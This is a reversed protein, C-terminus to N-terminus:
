PGAFITFTAWSSGKCLKVMERWSPASTSISVRSPPGSDQNMNAAGVPFIEQNTVLVASFTNYNVGDRYVPFNSNDGCQCAQLFDTTGNMYVVTSISQGNGNGIALSTAILTTANKAIGVWMYSTGSQTLNVNVQYYGARQPTFKGTTADYAGMDNYSNASLSNWKVPWFNFTGTNGPTAIYGPSGPFVTNTLTSGAANGIYMVTNVVGNITAPTSITVIQYGSGVTTTMLEVSGGADVIVSTSTANLPWAQYGSFGTATLTIPSGGSNNIVYVNNKIDTIAPSQAAILAAVTQTSTSTSIAYNSTVANPLYVSQNTLLAASFYQVGPENYFTTGANNNSNFAAQVYDTTGNLYVVAEPNATYYAGNNFVNSCLTTGNKVIAAFTYTPNASTIGVNIQYYGAVTPQYKGTATNYASQPNLYGLLLNADTVTPHEGGRDYCIPGPEAGASRPGVLM